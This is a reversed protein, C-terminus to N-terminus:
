IFIYIGLLKLIRVYSYYILLISLFFKNYSYFCKHIHLNYDSYHFYLSCCTKLDVVM